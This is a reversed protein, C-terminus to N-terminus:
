KREECAATVNPASKAREACTEMTPACRETGGAVHCFAAEVLRCEDLDTVAVIAADRARQCDAKERTCFGASPSTASSSCFFGRPTAPAPAAPTSTQGTRAPSPRAALSHGTPKQKVCEGFGSRGKSHEPMDRLALCATRSVGCLYGAEGKAVYRTCWVEDFKNCFGVCASEDASCVGNRESCWYAVALRPDNAPNDVTATPSPEKADDDSARRSANGIAGGVRWAARAERCERIRSEGVIGGVTFPLMIALGVVVAAGSDAEIGGLVAAGGVGVLLADGILLTPDTSCEPVSTGDWGDPLKKMGFSCGALTLVLTFAVVRRM